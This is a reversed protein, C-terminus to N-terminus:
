LTKKLLFISSVLIKIDKFTTDSNVLMGWFRAISPMEFLHVIISFFVLMGTASNMKAKCNIKDEVNKVKLPLIYLCVKSVGIPEGKDGTIASTTNYSRSSFANFFILKFM